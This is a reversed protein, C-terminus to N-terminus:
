CVSGSEAVIVSPAAGAVDSSCCPATATPGAGSEKRDAIAIWLKLTTVSLGVDKVVQAAGDHAVDIVDQRFEAV